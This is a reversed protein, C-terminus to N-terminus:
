DRNGNGCFPARQTLKLFTEEDAPQTHESEPILADEPEGGSADSMPEPLLPDDAGQAGVRLIARPRSCLKEPMSSIKVQLQIVQREQNGQREKIPRLPKTGVRKHSVHATKEM